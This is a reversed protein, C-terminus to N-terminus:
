DDHPSVEGDVHSGIREWTRPEALQWGALLPGVTADFDVRDDRSTWRRFKKSKSWAGIEKALNEYSRTTEMWLDSISAKGVREKDELIDKVASSAPTFQTSLSVLSPLCLLTCYLEHM